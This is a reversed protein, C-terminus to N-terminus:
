RILWGILLKHVIAALFGYDDWVCVVYSSSRRANFLYTYTCIQARARPNRFPASQTRRLKNRAVKGYINQKPYVANLAVAPKKADM